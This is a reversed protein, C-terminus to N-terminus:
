RIRIRILLVCAIADITSSRIRPRSPSNRSAPTAPTTAQGIAVTSTRRSTMITQASNAAPARPRVATKVCARVRLNGPRSLPWPRIVIIRLSSGAIDVVYRLRIPPM